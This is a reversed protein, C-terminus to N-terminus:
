VSEVGSIHFSVSTASAGGTILKTTTLVQKMDIVQTTNAALAVATMIPQSDFAITATQASSSNNSIVLSTIIATTSAPVTYLTTGTSTTAAGRFLAKPTNVAM